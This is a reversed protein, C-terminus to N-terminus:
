IIEYDGYYCAKYLSELEEATCKRPNGRMMPFGPSKEVFGKLETRYAEEPVGAKRYSSPMDLQKEIEIVREVLYDVAESQGDGKYGIAKALEAFREAGASGNFRIMYPLAIACAQGHALHFRGGVLTAVVHDVVVGSSNAFANGALSAAYHVHEKADKDDELYAPPLYKMLLITGQLGCARSFDNGLTSVYSSVAHTLADIGTNAQLSKPMTDAIDPDLIAITSINQPSPCSCKAPITPDTIVFTYSSESGAGSTSPIGISITKKFLPVPTKPPGGFYRIGEFTLKPHEYFARFGKSADICSGGGLGVIVDPRFGKYQELIKMVTNISPEPEVGDFVGVELGGKKLYGEAAASVGLRVMSKDTVLLARKGPVHQLHSISGRGWFIERPTIFVGGYGM